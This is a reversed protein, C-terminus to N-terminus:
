TSGQVGLCFMLCFKPGDTERASGVDACENIVAVATLIAMKHCWVCVCWVCVCVCVV